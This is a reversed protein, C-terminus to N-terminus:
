FELMSVEETNKLFVRLSEMGDTVQKIAPDPRNWREVAWKESATLVGAGKRRVSEFRVRDHYEDNSFEAGVKWLERWATSTTNDPRQITSEELTDELDRRLCATDGDNATVVWKTTIM